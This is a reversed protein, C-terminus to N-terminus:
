TALKDIEARIAEFLQHQKTPLIAMGCDVQTVKRTAGNRIRIITTESKTNDDSLKPIASEPLWLTEPNALPRTSMTSQRVAAQAVPIHTTGDLNRVVFEDGDIFLGLQLLRWALFFGVLSTAIVPIWPWIAIAVIGAVVITVGFIKALMPPGSLVSRSEAM